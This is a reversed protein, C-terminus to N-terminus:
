EDSPALIGYGGWDKEFGHPGHARMWDDEIKLAYGRPDMNIFVPIKKERFGILADVQALIAAQTAYTEAEDTPENCVKEALRHAQRELRRLAQHLHVVGRSKPFLEEFAETHSKM